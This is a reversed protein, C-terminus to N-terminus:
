RGRGPEDVLRIAERFDLRKKPPQLLAQYQTVKQLGQQHCLFSVPNLVVRPGLSLPELPVFSAM